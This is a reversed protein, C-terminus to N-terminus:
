NKSNCYEGLEAPRELMQDHKEISAADEFRMGIKKAPVGAFIAYPEVNKTLVSGMGIVAGRGVTVGARISVNQGIWVDDEVLTARVTPRGSFIVPTGAVNFHHDDGLITVNAALMVYKGFTVKPGIWANSGISSYPGVVIDKSIRCDGLFNASADVSKYGWIRYRLLMRIMRIRLRVGPFRHLIQKLM